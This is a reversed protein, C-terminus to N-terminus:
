LYGMKIANEDYVAIRARHANPDCADVEVTYRWESDEAAIKVALAIADNYSMTTAPKDTILGM